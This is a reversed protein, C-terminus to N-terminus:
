DISLKRKVKKSFRELKKVQLIDKLVNIKQRNHLYWFLKKFIIKPLLRADKTKRKKNKQSAQAEHLRFKILAEDVFGIKFFPMLRYWYEIDLAQDLITNFYGVKEFCNRHILVAPPEGIKNKPSDLLYKDKLYEKGPLVGENIQLTHWKDHLSKFNSVWRADYKNDKNYIIERKCYVLGVNDELLAIQVMREICNPLLLDDQFLFKIFEGNSHRVCNNWNAGIGSPKHHLITIPCQIQEKFSEIFILTGDSSADDSIIVEINQYTQDLISQLSEQIFSAGNYTPICISVLPLKSM